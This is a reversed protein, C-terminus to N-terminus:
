LEIQFFDRFVQRYVDFKMEPLWSLRFEKPDIWRWSRFEPHETDVTFRDAPGHYNCLFYYQEKGHQGKKTVGPPFVYFYPGRKELLEYDTPEVGIEEWLERHIAAEHSEGPDVGGQPFQWADAVKLREAIFIRGDARRLIGAVNPQYKLGNIPHQTTMQEIQGDNEDTGHNDAKIEPLRVALNAHM